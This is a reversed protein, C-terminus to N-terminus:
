KSPPDMTVLVTYRRKGSTATIFSALGREGDRRAEVVYHTNRELGCVWFKGAAGGEGDFVSFFAGAAGAEGRGLSVRQARSPSTRFVEVSARQAPQGASTLVRGALVVMGNTRDDGCKAAILSSDTPVIMDAITTSGGRVDFAQGHTLESGVANLASDPLGFVYRGPLLDGIEFRGDGDSRVRYDTGVLGLETNPIAAGRLLLRGRVAGLAAHWSTSDGWRASALVGGVEHVELEDAAPRGARDFTIPRAAATDRAWRPAPLQLWWADVVPLGNPMSRFTLTGGPRLAEEAASLGQYHFTLDSLTRTVSDVWLTGAVDIRGARQRAPEFALGVQTRRAADPRALRFCYGQPFADDLLVDADPADFVRTGANVTLFGERIFASASRASAFPRDALASDMRVVQSLVMPRREGVIRRYSIRRMFGPSAERAVITALLAARAQEWLALAEARDSRRPCQPQDRVTMAQLLTPIAVMVIDREGATADLSQPRFGMRLVRLRRGSSPLVVRYQGRENTIARGLASGQADLMEIVAGPIPARSASDRVIGRIDQASVREPLMLMPVVCAMLSWLDRRTM